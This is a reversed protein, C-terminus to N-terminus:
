QRNMEADIADQIQLPDKKKRATSLLAAQALRQATTNQLLKGTGYLARAGAMRTAPASLIEPAAIGAIMGPIGGAAYGAGAGLAMGGTKAAVRSAINQMVGQNLSALEARQQIPIASSINQNLESTGPNANDLEADLAHYAQRATGTEGKPHLPNWKTFDKGFERKMRLLDTSTQQPSIELPAPNGAKMVPVNKGTMQPTGYKIPTNAGEPYSTAGGFGPKPETLQSRMETLEPAAGTSNGSKAQAIRDEIIKVAPSPSVVANPNSAYMADLQPNAKSLWSETSQAVKAPTLGRTNEVAFAGPTKGYAKQIAPVGLASEAAAAAGRRLGSGTARMLPTLGATAGAILAANVGQGAVHGALEGYGPVIEPSRKVEPIPGQFTGEHQQRRNRGSVEYDKMQQPTNSAIADGAQKLEGPATLSHYLAPISHMPNVEDWFTQGFGPRDSQAPTGGFQKALAAYDVQDPQQAPSGGFQKALATYDIAPSSM